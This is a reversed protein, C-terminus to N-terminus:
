CEVSLASAGLAHVASEGLSRFLKSALAATLLERPGLLAFIQLQLDHLLRVFGEESGTTAADMAVM